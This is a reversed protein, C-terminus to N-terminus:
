TDSVDSGAPAPGRRGRPGNRRPVITNLKLTQVVEGAANRTEIKLTVIGRDPKSRSPRLRLVEIHLRLIDGPVVPRKWHLADVGAGLSGDSPGIESDVFMRMTMAATHSGSAVLRGFVSSRAADPDIHFPQPDYQRAFAIIEDATVEYTGSTFTEGATLDEFFRQGSV